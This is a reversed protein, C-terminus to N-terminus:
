RYRRLDPGIAYFLVYTYGYALIMMINQCSKRQKSGLEAIKSSNKLIITRWIIMKSFNEVSHASKEFPATAFVAQPSM